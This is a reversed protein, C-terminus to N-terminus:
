DEEDVRRHQGALSQQINPPVPEYHSLEMAYTGQGATVSKLRATYTSLEALPVQGTITVMGASVMPTGNVQGRRSALDGAIDGRNSEPSTIEVNVIPELVIPRAKLIADLFAKRGAAVFAVEKSDVPHHKGDHVVVRVDQLPFGAIAGTALVQEVGKQVAPMFQHPIVGGKTADVFEFGGLRAARRVLRLAAADKRWAADEVRVSISLALRAAKRVKTKRKRPTM